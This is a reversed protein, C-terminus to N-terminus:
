TIMVSYLPLSFIIVYFFLYKKKWSVMCHTTKILCTKLFIHNAMKQPDNRIPVSCNAKSFFFLIAPNIGKVKM